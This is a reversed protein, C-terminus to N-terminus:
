RPRRMMKMGGTGADDCLCYRGASTTLTVRTVTKRCTPCTPCSGPESHAKRGNNENRM